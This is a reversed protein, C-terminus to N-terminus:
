FFNITCFVFIHIDAGGGGGGGGVGIISSAVARHKLFMNNLDSCALVQNIYM